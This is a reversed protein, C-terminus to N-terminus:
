WIFQRDYVGPFDNHFVAMTMIRGDVLEQDCDTMTPDRIKFCHELAAKNTTMLFDAAVKISCPLTTTGKIRYIDSNDAKKWCVEAGEKQETGTWDDAIIQRLEEAVKGM